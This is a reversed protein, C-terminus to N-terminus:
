TLLKCLMKKSIKLLEFSLVTNQFKTLFLHAHLQRRLSDVFTLDLSNIKLKIILFNLLRELDM